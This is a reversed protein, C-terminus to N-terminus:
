CIDEGQLTDSVRASIITGAPKVGYANRHCFINVKQKGRYGGYRTWRNQGIISRMTELSSPLLRGM